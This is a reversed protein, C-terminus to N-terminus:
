IRRIRTSPNINAAKELNEIAKESQSNNLYLLGLSSLINYNDPYSKLAKDFFSIGEEFKKMKGYTNALNTYVDFFDSKMEVAKRYSNIAEEYKELQYYCNGVNFHIVASNPNQLLMEQYISLAEETKKERYLQNAKVNLEEWKPKVDEKIEKALVANFVNDKEFSIYVKGELTKCGEKEIRMKYESPPIGMLYYEGKKNTKTTYSHGRALDQLIIRADKVPKEETDTVKGKIVGTASSLIFPFIILLIFTLNNKKSM